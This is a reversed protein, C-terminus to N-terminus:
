TFNGRGSWLFFHCSLPFIFWWTNDFVGHYGFLRMLTSRYRCTEVHMRLCGSTQRLEFEVHMITLRFISTGYTLMKSGALHTSFMTFGSWVTRTTFRYWRCLCVTNVMFIPVSWSEIMSALSKLLYESILVLFLCVQNSQTKSFYHCCM